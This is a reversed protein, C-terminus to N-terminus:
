FAARADQAIKEHDVLHQGLLVPAIHVRRGAGEKEIRGRRRTDRGNCAEHVLRRHMRHIGLESIHDPGSSRGHRARARDVEAKRDGLMTWNGSVKAYRFM